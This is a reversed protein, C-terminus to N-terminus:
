FMINATDRIVKRNKSKLLIDYNRRVPITIKVCGGKLNHQKTRTDTLYGKKHRYSRPRQIFIALPWDLDLLSFNINHTAKDSM